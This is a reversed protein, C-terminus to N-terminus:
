LWVRPSKIYNERVFCSKEVMMGNPGKFTLQRLNCVSLAKTIFDFPWDLGELAFHVKIVLSPNVLRPTYHQFLPLFFISSLNECHFFNLIFGQLPSTTSSPPPLCNNLGLQSVSVTIETAPAIESFHSESSWTLQGSFWFTHLSLTSM